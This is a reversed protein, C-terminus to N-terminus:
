SVDAFCYYNPTLVPPASGYFHYYLCRLAPAIVGRHAVVFLLRRWPRRPRVEAFQVPGAFGATRLMHRLLAPSAMTRHTSDNYFMPLVLPCAPNPARLIVRGSQVLRKRTIRLAEIQREPTLHELVDLGIIAEYPEDSEQLFQLWEACRIDVRFRERGYGILESCVDIGRVNSHSHTRLCFVLAGCGCGVELIAAARDTPLHQRIERYDSEAARTGAMSQPRYRDPDYEGYNM